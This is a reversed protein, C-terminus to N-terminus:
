GASAPRSTTLPLSVSHEHGDLLRVRVKCDQLFRRTEDWGDYRGGSAVVESVGSNAILKACSFCPAASTYITAGERDQPAAFLLANAEAHLAVCNGTLINDELTFEGAGPVVACYVDDEGAPEVSRVCWRPLGRKRIREGALARHHDLLFFAPPLGGAPFTLRHLATPVSGFGLRMETRIGHTPIGLIYCVEVVHHLHEIRASYLVANSKSVTGDAGFYGQLWGYLYGYSEDLPPLHTKWHRPMNRFVFDGPEEAFLGSLARAPGHLQIFSGSGPQEYMCSGDGFVLGAKIGERSVEFGGTNAYASALYQGPLLETTARDQKKRHSDWVIWRHDATAYITKQRHYRQLTVAFLAQRGFYQVQGRKWGHSTLIQVDKGLMEELTRTGERTLFRTDGRFCNDYGFSMPSETLARPCAGADCHGYGAPPGNYGTSRIHRHQVVVAGVKRRSCNSRSATAEALTLFYEDWSQRSKQM